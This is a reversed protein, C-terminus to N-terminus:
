WRDYEGTEVKSRLMGEKPPDPLPMWHTPQWTTGCDRGMHLGSVQWHPGTSMDVLLGRYIGPGYHEANPIFILVSTNAPATEIPRWHTSLGLLVPRLLDALREVYVVDPQWGLFEVAIRNAAETANAKEGM